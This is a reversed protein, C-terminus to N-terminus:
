SSKKKKRNLKRELEYEDKFFSHICFKSKNDTFDWTHFADGGCLKRDPCNKCTSNQTRSLKRFPKYKNEWVEIFNDHRVNGQILEKRREVNPCVFMDGNALISAVRFGTECLFPTKHIIPEFVTGLFHVCGYSITIDKDALKKEEMFRFMRLLGKKDLLIDKKM